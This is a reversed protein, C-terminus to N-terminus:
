LNFNSDRENEIRQSWCMKKEGIERTNEWREMRTGARGRRRGPWAGKEM